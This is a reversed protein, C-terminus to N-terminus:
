FFHGSKSSWTVKERHSYIIDFHCPSDYDEIKKVHKLYTYYMATIKDPYQSLNKWVM